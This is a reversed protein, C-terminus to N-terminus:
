KAKSQLGTSILKGIDGPSLGAKLASRVANELQQWESPSATNSYMGTSAEDGLRSMLGDLLEEDGIDVALDNALSLLADRAAELSNTPIGAMDLPFTLVRQWQIVDRIDRSGTTGPMLELRLWANGAHIFCTKTLGSQEDEFLWLPTVNTLLLNSVTRLDDLQGRDSWIHLVDSRLQGGEVGLHHMLLVVRKESIVQERGKMWVSLNATRIGTAKSISVLTEGRLRMLAGALLPLQEPKLSAM